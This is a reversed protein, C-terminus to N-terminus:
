VFPGWPAYVIGADHTMTDLDGTKHAVPTGGPLMLPLRDNVRQQELLKIMSASADEDVARLMAIRELLESYERATTTSEYALHSKELGLERVTSNINAVGLRKWLLEAADNDSVTIMAELASDIGPEDLSVQGARAQRYLEIMVFVKYLSATEY